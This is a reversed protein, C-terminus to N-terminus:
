TIGVRSRRLQISKAREGFIELRKRHYERHKPINECYLYCFKVDRDNLKRLRGFSQVNTPTSSINVTQIATRVNPVDIGTSLSTPTSIIIDGTLMEDYSDEECYRVVKKDPYCETFYKLLLSATNVMAVFIILKDKPQYNQIYYDEVTTKILNIYKSQLFPKKFLSAEFATHSYHTSGYNSTKVFKMLEPTITYAIPYVDTYKQLVSGMYTVSEPYVVRHVRKVVSDDSLLTATLGIQYLVNLYIVIRYILHFSMHSEDNLMIGVGLIPFLEMPSCGYQEICSEPDLEYATLYAQMTEASFILYNHKLEGEKGMAIVAALSKSGSVVMVDKSDAEHLQVIDSVFKEIFRSLIVIGLRKQLQAIAAMSMLTNHTVIFNDTVYLHEEDEIAICQVPEDAKYEISKIAIRRNDPFIVQVTTVNKGTDIFNAIGGLSWVLYLAAIAMVLSDFDKTYPENPLYDLNFLEYFLSLRQEHTGELTKSIREELSENPDLLRGYFRESECLDIEVVEERELLDLVDLTSIINPEDNLYVRWLHENSVQTTRGDELYVTYVPKVGQPYVGTVKSSTGKRTTVRDGIKIDGMPKWGGPIKIMSYLPQAKGGGPQVPVLKSGRPNDVLFEVVPKQEERLQWHDRLKFGTTTATYDTHDERDSIDLIIDKEKLYHYLHKFQRHHLQYIGQNKIKGVYVKDNVPNNGVAFQKVTYYQKLFQGIHHQLGYDNTELTVSLNYVTLKVHM